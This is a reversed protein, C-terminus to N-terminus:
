HDTISLRCSDADLEAMAGLPITWMDDIHGFPAGAICPVGAAAACEALVTELPRGADNPEPPIETIGGFVIGACRAFVGAHRLQTLMRDIRYISENVDEIVIITGDYDPAYPTGALACLLALNGGALRGHARGGVLTRAGDAIGCPDSGRIVARELSERTFATMDARATPGHFTVLDARAGIAAHLATVDSYGILPIPRRRWSAYDIGDLLRMAGYGGRVCWIADIGDDAIAHNLDALRDADSGALYGMQDAAHPGVRATWGLREVNAVAADIEAPSRVPGAPCVLAVRAGSSLLSPKRM